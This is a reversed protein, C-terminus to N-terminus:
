IVLHQAAMRNDWRGSGDPRATWPYTSPNSMSPCCPRRHTIRRWVWLGCLLGYWNTCVHASVGSAPAFKTLDSGHEEQSPWEPLTPALTPSSFESDQPTTPGSQMENTIRGIRRVYTTITLHVSSNNHSPLFPHRSKLRRANASSPRTLTSHLLHRLEMARRTLSQTSGLRRLEALQIGALIPSNDAPTPRPCGIM